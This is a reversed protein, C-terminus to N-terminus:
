SAKNEVKENMSGKHKKLEELLKKMEINDSIMENSVYSENLTNRLEMIESLQKQRIKELELMTKEIQAQIKEM